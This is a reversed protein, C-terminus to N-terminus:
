FLDFELLRSEIGGNDLVYRRKAALGVEKSLDYSGTFIFGRAPKVTKRKLFDGLSRYLPILMETEDIRKGYPPNTMVFNPEKPPTYDRFDSNVVQIVNHFGSARLNSQCARVTSRNIDCGFFQHRDIAVQKSDIRNKLTLWERQNFQPMSMFGWKQRLYGPATKTAIMAAEILITGSGCCPDCFTEDGKFNALALLAAALNERIPAEGTDERYGRMHLPMGSTDFSIIAQNNHLFLNLQIDPNKTDVSPRAGAVERFTDCIADKVVQAAFLTHRFAPHNVNADIAFTQDIKMYSLWDIGMAAKYLDEKGQCRFRKLPLLVRSAIRSCYNITYVDQFSETNVYVGRFGLQCDPYGLASLEEALLPEMNQGCTVFLSPM